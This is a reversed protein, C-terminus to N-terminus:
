LGELSNERQIPTGVTLSGFRVPRFLRDFPLAVECPGVPDEYHVSRSHSREPIVQFQELIYRAM